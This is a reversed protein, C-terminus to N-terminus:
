MGVRGTGNIIRDIMSDIVNFARSAAQFAFQFRLMANMEEDMSVGKVAMRMNQAQEVQITQSKVNTKASSIETAILGSFRIYADQISYERGAINVSYFSNTQRWIEQLEILLRTDSEAGSLSLALNNHGGETLFAPNIRLNATTFITAANNPNEHDSIPWTYTGLAIDLDRVFLPIGENPPTNNDLPRLPVRTLEGTIPDIVETYFVYDGNADRLNGTLADNIMTVVSNVIRDFNMQIQPLMANNISWMHARHNHSQAFFDREIELSLRDLEDVDGTAAVLRAIFHNADWESHQLAELLDNRLQDATIPVDTVLGTVPDTVSEYFPGGATELAELAALLNDYFTGTDAIGLQTFAITVRGALEEIRDPEMPPSVAESLHSATITGRTQLLALLKGRDNGMSSDVPNMYNLYSTFEDPPTSASLIETHTTFIPEVLATDSTIYRLGMMSQTVGTLLHHGMSTINMDGNPGERVNIPILTALHDLLRHREDRYDNAKEGDLENIRIKLNLDAIQAVTANIGDRGNVVDRIQEDLNKQYEILGAYVEQSKNIFTSVHSLFFQRTVISEPSATLEQMSYWINNIVTQFNYADHLEGLISEISAGVAVKTSYFSLQSATNRFNIDLFENRIQHVESWYVGMGVQRLQGTAARGVDRSMATTQVIRQRSYGAIEANSINHGTVNLNRQAVKMGSAAISLGGFPM